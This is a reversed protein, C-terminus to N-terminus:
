YDEHTSPFPDYKLPQAPNLDAPYGDEGVEDWQVEAPEESVEDSQIDVKDVEADRAGNDQEEDSKTPPHM